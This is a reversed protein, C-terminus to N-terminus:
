YHEGLLIQSSNFNHKKCIDEYIEGDSEEGWNKWGGYEHWTITKAVLQMCDINYKKPIGILIIEDQINRTRILKNDVYIMGFMKIPFIYIDQYETKMIYESITTLNYLTNDANLHIIYAGKALSIGKDRNNHGWVGKYPEISFKAKIRDILILSTNSLPRSLEGDHFILVEIHELLQQKYISMLCKEFDEDSVSKDYHPIIITFLM